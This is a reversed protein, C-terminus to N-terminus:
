NQKFQYGSLQGGGEIFIAGLSPNPNPELNPNTKPNPPLCVIAGLSFQGGTLTLLQILTLKPTLPCNKEPAIKRSGNLSLGRHSLLVACTLFIM